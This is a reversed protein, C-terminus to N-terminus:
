WVYEALKSMAARVQPTYKENVTKGELLPMELVNCWYRESIEKIKNEVDDPYKETEMEKAIELMKRKLVDPNNESNALTKIKEHWIRPSEMHNVMLVRKQNDGGVRSLTFLLQEAVSLYDQRPWTVVVFVDNENRYAARNIHEVGAGADEVILDFLDSNYLADILDNVASNFSCLCHNEEHSGMYTVYFHNGNKDVVEKMSKERFEKMVVDRRNLLQLNYTQEGLHAKLHGIGMEPMPFKMTPLLTFSPDADVVWIKKGTYSQSLYTLFMAAVTTKGAGGKGAFIIRKM